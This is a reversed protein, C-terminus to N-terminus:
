KRDNAGQSGKKNSSYNLSINVTKIDYFDSNHNQHATIDIESNQNRHFQLDVAGVIYEGRHGDYSNFSKTISGGRRPYFPTFESKVNNHAGNEDLFELTVSEVQNLVKSGIKGNLLGYADYIQYYDDSKGAKSEMERVTLFFCVITVSYDELIFTAYDSVKPTASRDYYIVKTFDYTDPYLFTYYSGYLGLYQDTWNDFSKAGYSSLKKSNSKGILPKRIDNSIENIIKFSLEEDSLSSIEEKLSSFYNYIVSGKLSEPLESKAEEIASIFDLKSVSELSVAEIGDASNADIDESLCSTFFIALFLVSVSLAIKQFYFQKKQICM